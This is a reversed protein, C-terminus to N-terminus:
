LRPVLLHSLRGYGSGQKSCCIGVLLRIGKSRITVWLWPVRNEQHRCPKSFPVGCPKMCKSFFVM